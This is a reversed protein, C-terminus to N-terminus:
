WTHTETWSMSLNGKSWAAASKDMQAKSCQVFFILQHRFNKRRGVRGSWTVGDDGRHRIDVRTPQWASTQVPNPFAGSGLSVDM